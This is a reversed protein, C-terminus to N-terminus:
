APPGLGAVIAPCKYEHGVVRVHLRARTRGLLRGSLRGTMIGHVFGHLALALTCVPGLFGGIELPISRILRVFPCFRLTIAGVLRLGSGRCGLGVPPDGLAPGVGRLHIAASLAGPGLIASVRQADPQVGCVLGLVRRLQRAVSGLGPGCGDRLGLGLAGGARAPAPQPIRQPAPLKHM